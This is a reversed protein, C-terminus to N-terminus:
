KGIVEDIKRMEEVGTRALLIMQGYMQDILQRKDSPTMEPNQHVLRIIGNLTGISQHIGELRTFAGPNLKIEKLAAEGDGQKVLYQFTQYVKSRSIYEGYFDSVSQATASPYRVVFAKVVPIDALTALPKPPDPLAGAQRLEFDLADRVYAGLTGTWGRIYNDIVIPSALSSEKMGPFAGILRGVARSAQTTYEHYQYEPLIAEMRTPILPNNTFFSHNTMHEMIPVAGTPLVNIAAMGGVSALFDQMAKPDNGVFEDLLREAGSGFVVGLEFPKPVRYITPSYTVNGAADENWGDTMVIWFLDRQWHPIERWVQQREPTSNNAYWLLVSPATVGAGVKASTGVPDDKFARVTRDLGEMGANMFAAMMNLAQTQAGIRQFDLTIERSVFGAQQIETKTTAKARKFEGLRTANEMLESTIRLVELPSKIVNWSREMLGADKNLRAIHQQLYARDLAVMASNAGGSKLWSQFQNDKKVLSMAGRMMDWLPIYGTKSFTFATLQDRAVNRLMFDPALIAGARLTRAPFAVIKVLVNASARDTAAFAEAVTPPLDLVQPKGNEFYRLQNPAPRLANPRFITAADSPLRIDMGVVNETAVVEQVLKEVITDGGTAKENGLRRVMIEAENTSFGRAELADMVRKKNAAFVRNQPEGAVGGVGSTRTEETRSRRTRQSVTIFEDFLKKIERAELQIPRFTPKVKTIGLAEASATDKVVLDGLARGVANREALATYVYTNKIISELPDLVQRESGKIARLPNHVKMGKGPGKSKPEDFLRFFPVYDKNAELMAAYAEDGILGSDKMYRTVENQYKQLQEFAAAYQRGTNVVTDAAAADIGTEIGRGHLEQARRSVAYARFGDLDTKHPELIQKLGPGTNKYTNWDFTGHDLFQTAKGAAGRVLRALHYPSEAVDLREGKTLAQEVLKVPYLDDKVGTYFREWTLERVHEEGVSLRALVAARAAGAVDGEPIEAAARPPGAPPEPPKGGGGAEALSATDDLTLGFRERGERELDLFKQFDSIEKETYGRSRSFEKWNDGGRWLALEADTMARNPTKEAAAARAAAASFDAKWQAYGPRGDGGLARPIDFNSSALDARVTPDEIAMARLAEPDIGTKEYARQVADAMSKIVPPPPPPNFHENLLAIDRAALHVDSSTPVKGHIARGMSGILPAPLMQITAETLAALAPSGTTDAGDKGKKESWEMLAHLPYLATGTFRKGADTQPQYTFTEAFKTAIDKPNTEPSYTYHAIVGGIGGVLYAPFGLVAGTALNLAAEM